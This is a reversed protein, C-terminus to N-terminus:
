ERPGRYSRSGSRGSGHRKIGEGDEPTILGDWGFEDLDIRGRHDFVVGEEELLRRQLECGESGPPFSIEGRSNIVRFWPTEDEPRAASMAYGAMRATCNGAIRAIQGYTSVKGPPITRVIAYIRRYLGKGSSGTKKKV